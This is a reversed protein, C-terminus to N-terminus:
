QLWDALIFGKNDSAKGKSRVASNPQLRLEHMDSQYNAVRIYYSSNKPLLNQKSLQEREQKSALIYAGSVSTPSYAQGEVLTKKEVDLLRYKVTARQSIPATSAPLDQEVLWADVVRHQGNLIQMKIMLTKAYVNATTFSLMLIFLYIYKM